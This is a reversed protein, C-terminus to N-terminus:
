GANLERDPREYRRYTFGSDETEGQRMGVLVAEGQRTVMVSGHVTADFTTHPYMDRRVVYWAGNYHTAKIERSDYRAFEGM